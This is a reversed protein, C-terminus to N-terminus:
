KSIIHMQCPSLNVLLFRFNHNANQSFLNPTLLTRFNRPLYINYRFLVLLNSNVSLHVLSKLSQHFLISIISNMIEIRFM